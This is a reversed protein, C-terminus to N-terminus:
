KSWRKPSTTAPSRGAMPYPAVNWRSPKTAFSVQEEVPTEIVYRRIRATGRNIARKGVTPREEVLPMTEDAAHTRGTPAVGYSVAREDIDIPKHRELIDM